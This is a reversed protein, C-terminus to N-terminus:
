ARGLASTKTLTLTRQECTKCLSMIKQLGDYGEYNFRLTQQM